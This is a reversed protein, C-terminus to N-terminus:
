DRRVAADNGGEGMGRGGDGKRAVVIIEPSADVLVSRDFNGWMSEITYGARALLHELEVRLYWRMQFAHVRRETAGSPPTVHYILELDNIQALRHVAVLRGTRRFQSGDPLATDPTDDFEETSAAAIRALDPNFVDFILRGGPVLHRRIADLCSLQDDISTLHQMPRFPMIALAFREGVDFDRMDADYLTIRDRVATPEAAVKERCRDLMQRSREVGVIRKGTRAIPILVRGTGSALELIAGDVRAAEDVYFGVDGRSTYGGVHDYLLGLDDLSDYTEAQSLTPSTSSRM